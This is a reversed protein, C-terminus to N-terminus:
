INRGNFNVTFKTVNVSSIRLPFIKKKHLTHFGAESYHM